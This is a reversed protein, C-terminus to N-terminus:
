TESRFCPWLLPFQHKGTAMEEEKGQEQAISDFHLHFPWVHDLFPFAPAPLLSPLAGAGALQVAMGVKGEGGGDDTLQM